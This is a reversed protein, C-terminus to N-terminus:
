NAVAKGDGKRLVILQDTDRGPFQEESGDPWVVRISDVQRNAGLGFHARPDNSCLYSYGPNIRRLWRREGVRVTIEAGYADRKLAPDMARVMLWHGQKPATNRYLRARGAISTVLLDLAGDGTVDGCALGRGVRPTGCLPSNTASLDQFKGKGLNVFLRNRETYPRWFPDLAPDAEAELSGQKPRVVRGNVVALDARGDHNFDALVTGFGTGRVNPGALGSARTRDEFVGPAIQRWLTNTEETLHTVFVSLSGDGDIDEVAVGMNAEAKGLGNCALGRSLAEERFTGNKQNIWLHNPKGDNAVFIDPWRDGNFDACVVGLGPGKLSGLGSRITVDEFRVLPAKLGPVSAGEGKVTGLNRYLKAVTGHFAAPGCFDRKGDTLGCPRGPDYDLYNVVVLDLWGDRDYDFFAASTGWLAPQLGAEKTVETFTGNGNNLFLRAGVYGTVLVDPWGDNNVDAIAVGMCYGTIDLGSGKSVDVFKGDATQRYLRNTAKSNPGANQLLYIDLRGDNDFDFLAAGSGVSLPMFYSGPQGVDHVFDLGSEETIDVFWPSEATQDESDAGKGRGSRCGAALLLTLILGAGALLLAFRRAASMSGSNVVGM